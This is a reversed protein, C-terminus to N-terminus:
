KAYYHLPVPLVIFNFIYVFFYYFCSAGYKKPLISTDCSGAISKSFFPVKDTLHAYVLVTTKFNSYYFISTPIFFYPQFSNLYFLDPQINEDLATSNRVKGSLSVGLMFFMVSQLLMTVIFMGSHNLSCSQTLVWNTKRKTM